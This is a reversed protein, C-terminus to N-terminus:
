ILLRFWVPRQSHVTVIAVIASQFFHMLMIVLRFWSSLRYENCLTVVSHRHDSIHIISYNILIDFNYPWIRRKRATKLLFSLARAQTQHVSCQHCSVPRPVFPGKNKVHRFPSEFAVSSELSPYVSHNWPGFVSSKSTQPQEMSLLYICFFYFYFFFQQYPSYLLWSRCNTKFNCLLHTM